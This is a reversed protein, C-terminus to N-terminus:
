LGEFLKRRAYEVAAAEMMAKWDPFHSNAAVWADWDKDPIAKFNEESIVGDKFLNSRLAFSEWDPFTTHTKMFGSDFLESFPVSSRGELKRANEQLKRLERQLADLGKVEFGV